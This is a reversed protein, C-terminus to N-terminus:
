PVTGIAINAPGQGVGVVAIVIINTSTDIISVNNSFSNVVYAFAGDPTIAVGLPFTDVAVTRLAQRTITDVVSVSNDDHNTVYALAGNPTFAVAQPQKGVPITAVVANSGVDVV